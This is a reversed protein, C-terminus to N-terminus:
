NQYLLVKPAAGEEVAYFESASLWGFQFTSKLVPRLKETRLDYLWLHPQGSLTSSFLLQNGSPSLKPSQLSNKYPTTFLAKTVADKQVDYLVVEQSEQSTAGYRHVLLARSDNTWEMDYPQPLATKKDTKTDTDYVWVNGTRNYDTYAIKKGDPSLAALWVHATSPLAFESFTEKVVDYIVYARRQNASTEFIVQESNTGWTKFLLTSKYTLKQAKGSALHTLTITQADQSQGLSYTSAPSLYTNSGKTPQWLTKVAKLPNAIVLIPASLASWYDGKSGKVAVYYMKDPRLDTLETQKEHITELLKLDSPSGESVWIETKDFDVPQPGATGMFVSGISNIIVKDNDYSAVANMLLPDEPSPEPTKKCGMTLFLGFFILAFLTSIKQM